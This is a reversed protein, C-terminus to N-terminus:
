MERYFQAAQRIKTDLEIIDDETESLTKAGVLDRIHCRLRSAQQKGLAEKHDDVIALLEGEGVTLTAYAALARDFRKTSRLDETGPLTLRRLKNISFYDREWGNVLEVFFDAECLNRLLIEQGGFHHSLRGNLKREYRLLPKGILNEPISERRRRMDREKNYFSLVRHTTKFQLGYKYEVREFRGSSALLRFYPKVPQKMIFNTGYELRYLKAQVLPLSLQGSLEEIAQEVGQRTLTLYNNGLYFKPLSGDISVGGGTVKVRLNKLMGRNVVEGTEQSVTERIDSLNSLALEPTNTSIWMQVADIM